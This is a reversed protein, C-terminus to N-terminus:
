TLCGNCLVCFSLSWPSHVWSDGKEVSHGLWWSASDPKRKSAKRTPRPIRCVKSCLQWAEVLPNCSARVWVIRYSPQEPVRCSTLSTPKFGRLSLLALALTESGPFTGYDSCEEVFPWLWCWWWRSHKQTCPVISATSESPSWAKLTGRKNQARKPVKVSNLCFSPQAARVPRTKLFLSLWLKHLKPNKGMCFQLAM